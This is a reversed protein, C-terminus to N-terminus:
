FPYEASACVCNSESIRFIEKSKFEAKAIYINLFTSNIPTLFFPAVGEIKKGSILYSTKLRAM